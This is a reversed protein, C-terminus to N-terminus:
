LNAFIAAYAGGFRADTIEVDVEPIADLAKFLASPYDLSYSYIAQQYKEYESRLKVYFRIADMNIKKDSMLKIEHINTIDRSIVTISPLAFNGHVRELSARYNKFNGSIEVMDLAKQMSTPIKRIVDSNSLGIGISLASALDGEKLL